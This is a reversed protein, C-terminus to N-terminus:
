IVNDRLYIGIEVPRRDLEATPHVALIQALAIAREAERDVNQNLVADIYGAALGERSADTLEHVLVRIRGPSIRQRLTALLGENGAGVSYIGALRPNDNLLENARKATERADDFGEAPGIIEIGPFEDLMIESFGVFRDRHDRLDLSGVILGIQSHPPCFRGMLAAATRGAAENDIGVFARRKSQPLDSVLTITPMGKTQARAVARRVADDDTAVIVACDCKEDALRDIEEVLAEANLAPVTSMEIALRAQAAIDAQRAVAAELHHMFPNAGAPLVFHIRASTARALLSASVDRTYNLDAVAKEVKDITSQRVGKRGNLVRDVTALSVGAARAVDRVTARGHKQIITAM